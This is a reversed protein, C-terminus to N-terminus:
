SFIKANLLALFLHVAIGLITPAKCGSSFARRQPSLITSDDSRGVANAAITNNVALPRKKKMDNKVVIGETEWINQLWLDPSFM